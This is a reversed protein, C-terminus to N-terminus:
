AKIIPLEVSIRAGHATNEAIMNGGMDHVIGFSVSLGLGTGVGVDKTTYFPEFIRKLAGEPIGAGTDSVSLTVWSESEQSVAISLMKQIKGGSKIAFNANSVLNLLVQELRIQHGWIMIKNAIPEVSIKIEDLKLQPEMLEVVNNVADKLDFAYSKEKAERGFIRM